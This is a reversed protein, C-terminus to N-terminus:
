SDSQLFDIGFLTHEIVIDMLSTIFAPLGM